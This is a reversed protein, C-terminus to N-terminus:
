GSRRAGSAHRKSIQGHLQILGAKGAPVHGVEVAFVRTLAQRDVDGAADASTSHDLHQAPQDASRAM